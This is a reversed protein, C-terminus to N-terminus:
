LLEECEEILDKFNDYFADRMEETPFDLLYNAICNPKTDKVVKGSLTSYIVYHMSKEKRKEEWDGAHIWYADRCILLWQLSRIVFGRHEYNIPLTYSTNYGLIQSCEKLEKPYQPQKRAVITRGNKVIVEYDNGLILEVLDANWPEEGFRIRDFVALPVRAHKKSEEPQNYKNLEEASYYEKENTYYQIDYGSWEINCIRVKSECEPVSIEDGVKYPFKELFEELTFIKFNRGRNDLGVYDIVSGDFTYMKNTDSGTCAGNNNCGLMKLIEIIENGRTAHGKIALYAMDKSRQNQKKIVKGLVKWLHVPVSRSFKPRALRGSSAPNACVAEGTPMRPWQM